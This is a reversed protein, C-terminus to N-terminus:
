RGFITRGRFPSTKRVQDEQFKRFERDRETREAEADQRHQISAAIQEAETTRNGDYQSFRCNTDAQRKMECDHRRGLVPKAIPAGANTSLPVPGIGRSSRKSVLNVNRRRSSSISTSSTRAQISNTRRKMSSSSKMLHRQQRM